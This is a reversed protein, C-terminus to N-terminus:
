TSMFRHMDLTVKTLHLLLRSVIQLKVHHVVKGIYNQFRIGPYLAKYSKKFDFSYAKSSSLKPKVSLIKNDALIKITM